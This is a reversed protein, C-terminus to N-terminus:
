FHLLVSPTPITPQSKAYFNLNHSTLNGNRSPLSPFQDTVEVQSTKRLTAKKNLRARGIFSKMPPLPEVYFAMGTKGTDPDKSGDTYIHVFSNYVDNAAARFIVNRFPPYDTKLVEERLKFSVKPQPISWPSQFHIQDISLTIQDTNCAIALKSM